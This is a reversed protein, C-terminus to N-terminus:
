RSSRASRHLRIKGAPATRTPSREVHARRASAENRLGSLPRHRQEACSDPCGTSAISCASAAAARGSLDQPQVRSTIPLMMWEGGFDAAKHESEGVAAPINTVAPRARAILQALIEISGTMQRLRRRLSRCGALPPRKSQPGFRKMASM